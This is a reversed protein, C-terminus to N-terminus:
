RKKTTIFFFVLYHCLYIYYSLDGLKSLGRFLPLLRQQAVFALNIVFLILGVAIVFDSFVWGWLGVHLLIDGAICILLGAVGVWVNLIFNEFRKQNRM